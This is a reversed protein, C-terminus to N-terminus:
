SRDCACTCTCTTITEVTVENSAGHLPMGEGSEIGGEHDVRFILEDLLEALTGITTDNGCLVPAGAIAACDFLDCIDVCLHSRDHRQEEHGTHRQLQALAIQM